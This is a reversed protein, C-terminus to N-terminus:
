ARRPSGGWGGPPPTPLKRREDQEQERWGAGFGAEYSNVEVPCAPHPEGRKHAERGALFGQNYPEM